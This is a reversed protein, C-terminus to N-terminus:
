GLFFRLTDDKIKEFYEKATRKEKRLSYLRFLDANLLDNCITSKEYHERNVISRGPIMKSLRNMEDSTINHNYINAM